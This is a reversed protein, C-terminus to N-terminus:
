GTPCHFIWIPSKKFIILIDYKMKIRQFNRCIDFNNHLTKFNKPPFIGWIGGPQAGPSPGMRTVGFIHLVTSAFSSVFMAFQPTCHFVYTVLGTFYFTKLYAPTKVVFSWLTKCWWKETIILKNWITFVTTATSFFFCLVRKV